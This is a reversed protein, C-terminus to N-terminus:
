KNFGWKELYDVSALGSISEVDSYLVSRIYKLDSECIAEDENQVARSFLLGSVLRNNKVAAVIEPRGVARAYDAIIRLSSILRPARAERSENRQSSELKLDCDATLGIHALLQGIYRRPDNKLTDFDGLFIQSRDFYGLYTEVHHFYRGHDIIEPLERVASSFPMRTRGQLRLYKYSSVAREVPNRLNVILKIDPNYEYIRKAAIASFLYDHSIEGRRLLGKSEPSKFQSEYWEAGLDYYRDFYFLEKSRPLNVCPHERLVNDLWTSGAKDPGIYLFDVAM